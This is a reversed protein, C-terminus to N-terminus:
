HMSVTGVISIKGTAATGATGPSSALFEYAGQDFVGDAGRSNGNMDLNYPSSLSAGALAVTLKYNRGFLPLSARDESVDVFPSTTTDTNTESTFENGQGLGANYGINNIAQCGSCTNATGAVLDSIGGDNLTAFTNNYILVGSYNYDQRLEVGRPFNSQTGDDAFVNGYIAINADNGQFGTLFFGEANYDWIQNYRFTGNTAGSCYFINNHFNGSISRSNYIYSYEVTWGSGASSQLCSECGHMSFHGVYWNNNNPTVCKSQSPYNYDGTGTYGYCDAYSLTINTGNLNFGVNGVGYPVSFGYSSSGGSTYDGIAGNFVWYDTNFDNERPITSQAAFSDSWGVSTGHDAVTAHQITITLTGSDPTNWNIATGGTTGATYTGAGVYYIDGRVLSSIACSGKFDTCANTWDSGGGNGAASALVYHTAGLMPLTSACFIILLRNLM